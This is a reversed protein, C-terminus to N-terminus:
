KDDGRLPAATLYEKGSTPNNVCGIPDGRSLNEGCGRNCEQCEIIEDERGQAVKEPWHADAILGRGVAVLDCRGEALCMEAVEPDNMGNVAIVPVGVEGRVVAAWEAPEGGESRSPSIDLINVGAEVLRQSFAVSDELTYGGRVGEVPTHRYLLPYDSPVVERVTRVAELGFRMRNELSGGYEDTRRNHIPSFFRNHFFGHAGHLEIADFGARHCAAAAKGLLRFIAEIEGTTADAPLSSMNITKDGFRGVLSLQIAVPVDWEHVATVMNALKEGFDADEFYWIRTVERIILGVGGRAREVYWYRTQAGGPEMNSAMPPMVIRNRLALTGRRFPSFLNPYNM